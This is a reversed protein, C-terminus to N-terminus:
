SAEATIWSAVREAIMITPLNTNASPITPMISADAVHLHEIGYVQGRPDVVAGRDPDPGMRCTGVPHHYTDVRSEISAAIASIDSDAIAPGPALEPGEVLGKLPATRSIGRAILTAEIMRSLDDPHHLHAVEIRPPDAPNGSRIRVSGRSKPLVLGTVLGFVAESSADPSADFPGAVFLHLDPPGDAPALQSRMTAMTQFRPGATGRRTPLDVAVLPHDALNNGVGPLDAVVAIGLPGLHAAPGIGSRQLIAPSAYAGAALVVQGARVMEGGALRVGIAVGSRLEIRDAMAGGRVTLNPRGRAAALYTLAASMRVGDRANRPMPGVGVSGPRNLDPVYALGYACAAEIFAAQVANLEAPPHRRIPVPGQTGHWDDAFDADAELRRFFPLVDGFSWGPNGMEAWGDYDAPAGRLAFCGNTASCGGILRARPLAIRRGRRDPEGVYGWDHGLTPGSADRVDAPLDAIDALDPGAELLTVECAPDESLRAALVCGASGGGVVLLDTM